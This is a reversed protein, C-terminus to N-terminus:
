SLRVPREGILDEGTGGRVFDISQVDVLTDNAKGARITDRGPGGILIDAGAEGFLTDDGRDGTITDPGDGGRLTDDGRGGFVIDGGSDGAITDNGRGGSLVDIGFGGTLLDNGAEGVILDDDGNGDITDDGSGGYIRDDGGSGFIIDNGAGGFIVDDGGLGVIRDDGDRGCIVDSGPTGRLVDDGATGTITCVVIRNGECANGIGDFDGDFQDPQSTSPCNDILDAYGDGDSDGLPGDLHDADCHDPRGDLDIDRLTTTPSNPCPDISDPLGDGDDDTDCEATLGDGDVDTPFPDFANCADDLGDGDGTVRFMLAAKALERDTEVSVTLVHEGIGLDIPDITTRQGAAVITDGLQWTVTAVTPRVVEIDVILEAPSGIVADITRVSIEAIQPSPTPAPLASSLEAATAWEIIPATDGAIREFARAHEPDNAIITVVADTDRLAARFAAIDADTAQDEFVNVVRVVIRRDTVTETFLEGSASIADTLDAWSSVGDTTTLEDIAASLEEGSTAYTSVAAQLDVAPRVEPAVAAFEPDVPTDEEAADGAAIVEGAPAADADIPPDVIEIPASDDAIPPPDATTTPPATTTTPPATTTTPPPAASSIVPVLAVSPNANGLQYTTIWFDATARLAEHSSADATTTGLVLAIEAPAGPPSTIPAGVPMLITLLDAIANAGLATPTAPHAVSNTLWAREEDMRHGAFAADTEVVVLPLDGMSEVVAARLARSTDFVSRVQAGGDSTPTCCRSGLKIPTDSVPLPPAVLVINAEPAARHIQQLLSRWSFFSNAATARAIGSEAQCTQATRTEPQLCSSALTPWDFELGIGGVVVVDTDADVEGIQEQGISLLTADVCSENQVIVLTDNSRRAAREVPGNMSMACRDSRLPAISPAALFGDGLVAVKATPLILAKEPIIPAVAGDNQGFASDGSLLTATLALSILAGFARRSIVRRPSM